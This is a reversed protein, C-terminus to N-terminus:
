KFYSPSFLFRIKLLIKDGELAVGENNVKFLFKLNQTQIIEDSKLILLAPSLGASYYRLVM